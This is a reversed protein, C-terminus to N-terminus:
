FRYRVGALVTRPKQGRAGAKPQRGIIDGDNDSLNDVNVYFRARDRWDYFVSLDLSYYADIQEYEGCAASACTEDFYALRLNSGVGNDLVMGASLALQHEPLDPLKDGAEVEGWVSSGVFSTKFEADTYTYTLGMPFQAAATGLTYSAQVELGKIEAEGGNETDGAECPESGAGGSNSCIGVINDYDSFFGIVEASLAGENFRFGAEYNTATEPDSGESSTPSHGEYVGALLQWRDSADYTVGLGPLLESNKVDNIDYNEYRLGPKINWAGFALNDSAYLSYAKSKKESEGAEGLEVLDFNGGLGQFYTDVPQQRFEEDRHIRGGVALTHTMSGADFDGIFRTQVGKSEYDRNNNKVYVDAQAAGHLVNRAFNSDYDGYDSTMGDCSGGNACTIVEDIGEGDIKDTKYWNRSFDAYYGTTTLRANESFEILHTLSGAKREFNMVDQRSLGYRQTPAVAFDAETLGVYTQESQEESYQLKMELQQYFRAGGASNYRLKAALDDKDFGTDNNTFQVSSFGDSGATHGEVLYGWQESSAGYSAHLRYTQDEGYELNVEGSAQEPIPTSIVNIAGGITYPGNEIAAAGKLVEVGVVRGTAPFYYASSATYPAPAILVGDEMLTIKSSRDGYTGRISINPRLGYGEETRTYVGPVDALIRQIDTYEFKALDDANLVTGSGALRSADDKTGIITVTEMVETGAGVQLSLLSLGLASLVGYKNSM